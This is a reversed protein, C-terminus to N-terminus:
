NKNPVYSTFFIPGGGMKKQKQKKNKTKQKKNKTKQKKNKELDGL